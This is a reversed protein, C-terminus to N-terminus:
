GGCSRGRRPDQRSGRAGADLDYELNSYGRASRSSASSRRRRRAARPRPEHARRRRDRQAVRRLSPRRARRSSRACRARALDGPDGGARIAERARELVARAADVALAHPEDLAACCSTSRRAPRAAGRAFAVARGGQAAGGADRRTRRQYHELVREVAEAPDDTVSCCSSTTPALDDADALLRTASGTSCTAGTTSGFLVVPFDLVKGTQILTLAEFLEDLTGFGGPFIVFGESPKVFCVKRAYFHRFTYSIDLYPNPGARAAARHQLRGLARRGGQAGRNAAEM